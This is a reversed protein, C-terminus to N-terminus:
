KSQCLTVVDDRFLTTEVDRAGWALTIAPLHEAVVRDVQSGHAWRWIECVVDPMGLHYVYYGDSLSKSTVDKLVAHLRERRIRNDPGLASAIDDSIVGVLNEPMSGEYNDFAHIAIVTQM